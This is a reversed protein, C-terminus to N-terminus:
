KTKNQLWLDREMLDKEVVSFQFIGWRALLEVPFFSFLLSFAFNPKLIYAQDDLKIKFTFWKVNNLATNNLHKGTEVLLWLSNSQFGQINKSDLLTITENGKMLATGKQNTFYWKLNMIANQLYNEFISIKCSSNAVGDLEIWKLLSFNSSFPIKHILTMATCFVPFAPLYM